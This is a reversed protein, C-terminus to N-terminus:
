DARGATERLASATQKGRDFEARRRAIEEPPLRAINCYDQKWGPRGSWRLPSRHTTRPGPASELLDLALGLTLDQSAVDGPLGAANGLPFDSFLLRPVGAHEVIDRACGMVVTAIGAEELARAALSASQHCVPCNPVLIAADAGDARCRAVLEPCDTEVTTRQSRNTPLGHIRPAVAGIRGAAAARRLAPLPFYTNPDEATTHDRDIAVHSIRLDHDTAADLSYVQYFKAAANYPAGPGQDGKDPQYPAATTVLTVRCAALPKSLPQFPVDDFSAWAYPAGYGLAAYYSRTRAIYPVPADQDEGTDASPTM